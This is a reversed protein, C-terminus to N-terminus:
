PPNWRFFQFALNVLKLVDVLPRSPTPPCKICIFVVVAELESMARYKRFCSGKFINFSITTLIKNNNFYHHLDEINMHLIKEIIIKM